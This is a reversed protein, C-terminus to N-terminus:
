GELEEDEQEVCLYDCSALRKKLLEVEKEIVGARDDFDLGELKENVRPGFANLASLFTSMTKALAAEFQGAPLMREKIQEFEFRDRELRLQAHALKVDREQVMEADKRRGTVGHRSLWERHDGVHYRSDSTPRPADLAFRKRANDITQRTIGCAQALCDLNPAFGQADVIDVNNKRPRGRTRKV